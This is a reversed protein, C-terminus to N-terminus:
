LVYSQSKQIFSYFAMIPVRAFSSRNNMNIFDYFTQPTLISAKNPNHFIYQSLRIGSDDFHLNNCLHIIYDFPFPFSQENFALISQVDLDIISMQMSIFIIEIKYPIAPNLLNIFLGRLIERQKPSVSFWYYIFCPIFLILSSKEYLTCDCAFQIFLSQFRVIWRDWEIERKPREKLLQILRDTAQQLDKYCQQKEGGRTAPAYISTLQNEKGKTQKFSLLMQQVGATFGRKM